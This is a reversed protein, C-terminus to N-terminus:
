AESPQKSVTVSRTPGAGDALHSFTVRLLGARASDHRSTYVMGITRNAVLHAFRWAVTWRDGNVYL